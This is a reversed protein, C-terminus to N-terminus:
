DQHEVSQCTTRYQNRSCADSPSPCCPWKGRCPSYSAWRRKSGIVGIYAAPSEVLSPLGPVDVTVGRTTLILYTWPTIKMQGSLDAMPVPYFVDGSPVAEPTCFGDRDDNVVVYFGLWKALHAVAQGVHGAGIVVLIPSPQVPEVFIELQGGCVGPDGRQPDTMSYELLRPKGDNIAGLAEAIVRSEMEGGGITGEINGDPYVLMKSTTRRPTSGRSRVIICLAGSENKAELKALAQYVSNSASM